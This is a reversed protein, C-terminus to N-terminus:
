QKEKALEKLRKYEDLLFVAEREGGMGRKVMQLVRLVELDRYDEQRFDM